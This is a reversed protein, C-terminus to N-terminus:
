CVMPVDWLACSDGDAHQVCFLISFSASSSELSLSAISNSKGQKRLKPNAIGDFKGQKRLKEAAWRKREVGHGWAEEEM